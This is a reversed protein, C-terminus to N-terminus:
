VQMFGTEGFTPTEEEADAAADAAPRFEELMQRWTEAQDVLAELATDFGQSDLSALGLSRSLLYKDNEADKMFVAESNMNAELLLDAFIAKGEVPPEGIEAVINVKDGDAIVSVPIGDIDLSFAEDVVSIGEIGHREAFESALEKLDM